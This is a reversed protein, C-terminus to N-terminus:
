SLNLNTPISQISGPEKFPGHNPNSIRAATTLFYEIDKPSFLDEFNTKCFAPLSHDRFYVTALPVTHDTIQVRM